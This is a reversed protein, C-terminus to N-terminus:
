KRVWTVTTVEKKKVEYAEVSYDDLGYNYSIMFSVRWYTKDTKRLFVSYYRTVDHKFHGDDVFELLEYENEDYDEQVLKIATQKDM